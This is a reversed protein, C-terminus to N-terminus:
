PRAEVPVVSRRPFVEAFHDWDIEYVPHQPGDGDGQKEEDHPVDIACQLSAPRCGAARSTATEDDNCGDDTEHSRRPRDTIFPAAVGGGDDRVEDVTVAHHDLHRELRLRLFHLHRKRCRHPLHVVRGAVEVEAGFRKRRRELPRETGDIRQRLLWEAIRLAVLLPHFEVRLEAVERLLVAHLGHLQPDPADLALALGSRITGSSSDVNKSGNWSPLGFPDCVLWAAICM